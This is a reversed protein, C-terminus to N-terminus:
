RLETFVNLNFFHKQNVIDLTNFSNQSYKAKPQLLLAVSVCCSPQDTSFLMSWRSKFLLSCGTPWFAVLVRGSQWLVRCDTLRHFIFDSYVSKSKKNTQLSGLISLLKKLQSHQSDFVLVVVAVKYM